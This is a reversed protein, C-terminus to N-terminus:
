KLYLTDLLFIGMKTKFINNKILNIQDITMNDELINVLFDAEVLIQYDLGTINIYTHHHGVLYAIRNKIDDELPYNSLLQYVIEPGYKEQLPGASSHELREAIKIGCDHILCALEITQITKKDLNENRAILKGFEYVKILHHIRKPDNEFYLIMDYLLQETM